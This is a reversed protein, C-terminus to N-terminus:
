VLVKGTVLLVAAHGTRPLQLPGTLAWTNGVPDYLEASTASFVAGGGEGGAVLARGDPLLTTTHRTRRANLPPTSVWAGRAPDYREATDSGPDGGVVLVTGDRLRTATHGVRASTMAATPRWEGSRPDYLEATALAKGADDDGGTALVRGDTLLTLTHFSRPTALPGTSTWSGAGPDYISASRSPGGSPPSQLTAPRPPGGGAVLVRGDALAVGPGDCVLPCESTDAWTGLSPVFFVVRDVPVAASTGAGAVVTLHVSGDPRRPTTAKLETDSVVTFGKAPTDGFYVARASTFGNGTVAMTSGGMTTASSPVVGTVTLGSPATRLAIITGGAGVAWGNNADPFSVAALDADTGSAQPSWTGGGDTTAVITGGRGVAWGNSGDPFSVAALNANTASAQPGWTHGGDVTALIVGGDGVAHGFSGTAGGSSGSFPTFRVAHLDVLPIDLTPNLPFTPKWGANATRLITNDGQPAGVAHGESPDVFSVATLGPCPMRECAPQQRWHVGGDTTVLVTSRAGVVHGNNRDTFSIGSLDATVLDFSSPTCKVSTACAVQRAWHRGGDTTALILGGVGVAHGNSPDTFAM